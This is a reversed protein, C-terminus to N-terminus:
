LGLVQMMDSLVGQDQNSPAIVDAHRKVTESGNAMVVARGAADLMSIDNGGDGYTCMEAERIGLARGLERLGSAKDVGKPIIDIDGRGSSTPNAFAAMERQWRAMLPETDEARCNVMVKVVQHAVPLFDDVVTLHPCWEHQGAIVEEPERSLMYSMDPTALLLHCDPLPMVIEILKKAIDDSFANIAFTREPGAVVGGNEAVFYTAPFNKFIRQLRPKQNGSAAVFIQGNKRMADQIRAFRAEDFDQSPRLFTGDMDAAFLKIM